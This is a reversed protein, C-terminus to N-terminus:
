QKLVRIPAGNDLTLFYLGAPLADVSFSTQNQGVLAEVTKQWLARGSIDSLRLQMGAERESAFVVTLQDTAPSPYVSLLGVQIQRRNLVIIDSFSFQTDYDVTRLRYYAQAPATRDVFRYQRPSLANVQGALRGIEHWDLGEASREIVHWEVNKETRTTWNLVNGEKEAVGSFDELEVPLASGSAAITFLASGPPTNSYLRFYYTGASLNTITVAVPTGVNCASPSGPGPIGSETYVQLVLETNVVNVTISIDGGATTFKYWVDSNANPGFNYCDTPDICCGMGNPDFNNYSCCPDPFWSQTALASSQTGLNIFGGQADTISIAGSPEDNPPPASAAAKLCLDFSGGTPNGPSYSRLRYTEGPNLNNMVGSQNSVSVCAIYAGSNTYLETAFDSTANSPYYEIATVGAPVIFTYWVDNVLVSNNLCNSLDGSSTANFTNIFQAACVGNPDIAPIAIPNAFLDNPPRLKLCIEFASYSSGTSYVQMHYTGSGLSLLTGSAQNQCTRMMGGCADYVAFQVASGSSYSINYIVDSYGSPVTFTFWIDDDPNGGCVGPGDATANATSGSVSACNGDQTLTPFAVANACNNNVPAGSKLCLDFKSVTNSGNTFVRLYYTNGPTLNSFLGSEADYCGILNGGCNDYVEFIRNNDIPRNMYAYTLNNTSYAVSNYGPPVTFTYWVDDDANGQCAAPGSGTAGFTSVTMTACTGDVPLNFAAANNCLDNNMKTGFIYTGCNLADGGLGFAVVKWAYLTGQQAAVVTSNGSVTGALDTPNQQEGFYVKYGSIAAGNQTNPTWSLTVNGANVAYDENAPADLTVCVPLTYTVSLTFDVICNPLSANDVVLYYTQGAILNYGLILREQGTAGGSSILCSSAGYMVPCGDYLVLSADSSSPTTLRLDFPASVTPTFVFVADEGDLYNYNPLCNPPINGSNLDNVKGCTTRGSITFPLPMDEAGPGLTFLCNITSFSYTPCDTSTAGNASVSVVRWYYTTNNQLIGLTYSTNSQTALLPLNNPDTGFYLKYEAAGPMADWTLPVYSNLGFSGSAPSAGTICPPGQSVSFNDLYIYYNYPASATSLVGIRVYVATNAPVTNAPITYTHTDCFGSPSFINQHYVTNNGADVVTIGITYLEGYYEYAINIASGNSSFGQWIADPSANNSNLEFRLTNGSGCFSTGSVQTKYGSWGSPLNPPPTNNFTEQYNTQALLIGQCLLAAWLLPFLKSFKM